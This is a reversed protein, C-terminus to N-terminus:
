SALPAGLSDSGPIRIFVLTCVHCVSSCRAVQSRRIALAAPNTNASFPCGIRFISSIIASGSPKGTAMAVLSLNLGSTCCFDGLRFRFFSFLSFFSGSLGTGTSTSPDGCACALWFLSHNESATLRGTMTCIYRTRLARHDLM